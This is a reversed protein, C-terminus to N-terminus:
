IREALYQCIGPEIRRQKLHCKGALMARWAAGAVASLVTPVNGNTQRDQMLLGTHYGMSEGRPLADLKADFERPGKIADWSM